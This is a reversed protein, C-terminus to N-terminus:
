ISTTAHPVGSYCLDKIQEAAYHYNEWPADPPILHDFGPVYRGFKLMTEARDIEIDIDRKTGALARKDLGGLIGLTPYRRRYELIDNGAQVEFPFFANVGHKMMLPVLEGCDGDTDVSIVRVGVSRAFDAIRDYCPMMFTEIMAPSILSGQRGSMDEWIHIHDIRVEDAVKEWLSIWLTALHNMMDHVLDPHDYFAVLLAEAGMLDRPTGFIGFPYAGVQVAQGTRRLHDRFADWDQAIRAPENIRLREAKLQEWDDPTRVPYDLFQPISGRDRRERKTIGREDRRVIFEANEELVRCEFPPYIGAHVAPSAFDPDFGFEVAPDLNDRHTERRWRRLTAGWPEWGIGVGYPVRDIPEGRLCRVLREGCTLEATM